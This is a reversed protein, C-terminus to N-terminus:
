SSSLFAASFYHLGSLLLVYHCWGLLIQQQIVQIDTVIVGAGKFNDTLLLVQKILYFFKVAVLGEQLFLRIPKEMIEIM